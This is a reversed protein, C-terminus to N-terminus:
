KKDKQILISTVWQCLNAEPVEVGRTEAEAKLKGYVTFLDEIYKDIDFAKIPTTGIVKGGYNSVMSATKSQPQAVTPQAGKQKCDWCTKTRWNSPDSKSTVTRGCVECQFTYSM